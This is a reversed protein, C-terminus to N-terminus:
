VEAGHLQNEWIKFFIRITRSASVVIRCEANQMRCKENRVRCEANFFVGAFRPTKIYNILRRVREAPLRSHM